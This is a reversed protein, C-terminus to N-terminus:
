IRAAAQPRFAAALLARALLKDRGILAIHDHGPSIATDVPRM